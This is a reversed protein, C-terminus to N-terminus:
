ENGSNMRITWVWEEGEKINQASLKKKYFPTILEFVFLSNEYIPFVKVQSEQLDIVMMPKNKLVQADQIKYTIMFGNTIKVWRMKGKYTMLIGEKIPKEDKKMFSPILLKEFYPFLGFCQVIDSNNYGRERLERLSLSECQKKLNSHVWNWIRMRPFTVISTVKNLSYDSKTKFISDISDNLGEENLGIIKYIKKVVNFLKLRNIIGEGDINLIKIAFNAKEEITGRSIISLARLYEIFRIEDGKGIAKFLSRQIDPSKFLYSFFKSM